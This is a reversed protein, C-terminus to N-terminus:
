QIVWFANQTNASIDHKTPDSYGSSSVLGTVGTGNLIGVKNGTGDYLGAVVRYAKGATTGPTGAPLPVSKTISFNGGTWHDTTPSPYFDGITAVHMGTTWDVLHVFVKWSSDLPGGSFNLTYDVNQGNSISSDVVSWENITVPPYQLKCCLYLGVSSAQANPKKVDGTIGSLFDGNESDETDLNVVGESFTLPCSGAARLICYNGAPWTAGGGTGGTSTAWKVKGNALDSDDAMLVQGTTPKTGSLPIFKFDGVIGLGLTALSGFKKQGVSGVHIPANCGDRYNPNPTSGDALLANTQCDTPAGPAGSWVALASLASAGILFGIGLLTSAIIKSKM